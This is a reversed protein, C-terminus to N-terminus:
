GWDGRHGIVSRSVKRANAVPAVAGEIPVGVRRRAVWARKAAPSLQRWREYAPVADEILNLWRATLARDDVEVLRRRGNEVMAKRLGPEDRLRVLAAEVEDRTVVEIYDLSRRREARYASERGLIAPVGAMWSNFLKSPPKWLWKGPYEFSRVALVADADSYDHWREPERVSFEFGQARLRDIWAPDMLSPDLEGPIGYFVVNTVDDGRDDRRPVLGPQTWLPIYRLWLGAFRALLSRGNRIADEGNQVVHVHAYPHRPRDAQYCLVFTSLLAPDFRGRKEWPPDDDSGTHPLFDNHVIVIGDSPFEDVLECPFREARLNLYTRVTTAHRAGTWRSLPGNVEGQELVWPWYEDVSAPLSSPWWSRPVYFRVPVSSSHSM